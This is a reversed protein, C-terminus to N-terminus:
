NNEGIEIFKLDFYEAASRLKEALLKCAVATADDYGDLRGLKFQYLLCATEPQSQVAFVSAIFGDWMTESVTLVLENGSDKATTLRVLRLETKSKRPVKGYLTKYM